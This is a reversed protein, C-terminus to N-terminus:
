GVVLDDGRAEIPRSVLPRKAPGEVPLGDLSFRSGHCMCRIQEGEVDTINCGQHTCIAVFAHFDGPEPQTVVLRHADIMVGSGVPIDAVTAVVEADPGPPSTTTAVPAPAPAAEREPAAGCAALAGVAAVTGAGGLLARRSVAACDRSSDISM